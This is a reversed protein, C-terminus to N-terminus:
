RNATSTSHSHDDRNKRMLGALGLLGLLGIWGLDVGENDARATDTHSTTGAGANSGTGGTDQATLQM